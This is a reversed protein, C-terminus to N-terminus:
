FDTYSDEMDRDTAKCHFSVQGYELDWPAWCNQAPYTLNLSIQYPSSARYSPLCCNNSGRKFQLAHHLHVCCQLLAASSQRLWSVTNIPHKTLATWQAIALPVASHFLSLAGHPRCQAALATDLTLEARSWRQFTLSLHELRPQLHLRPCASGEVGSGGWELSTWVWLEKNDLRLLSSTCGTNQTVNVLFHAQHWPSRRTRM